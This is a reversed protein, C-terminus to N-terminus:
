AGVRPRNADVEWHGLLLQRPPDPCRPFGHAFSKVRKAGPPPDLGAMQLDGNQVEVRELAAGGSARGESRGDVLTSLVCVIRSSRGPLGGRAPACHTVGAVCAVPSAHLARCSPPATALTM